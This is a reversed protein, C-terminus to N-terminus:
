DTGAKQGERHDSVKKAATITQNQLAYKPM